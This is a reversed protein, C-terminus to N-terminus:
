RPRNVRVVPGKRGHAPGGRIAPLASLFTNDSGLDLLNGMCIENRLKTLDVQALRPLQSQNTQM